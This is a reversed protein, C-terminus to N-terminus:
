ADALEAPSVRRAVAAYYTSSAITIGHASLVRCIPEVGFRAKHGDIHGGAGVPVGHAAVQARHGRFRRQSVVYAPLDCDWTNLLSMRGGYFVPDGALLM